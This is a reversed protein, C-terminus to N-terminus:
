QIVPGEYTQTIGTNQYIAWNDPFSRYLSELMWMGNYEIIIRDLKHEKTLAELNEKTLWSEEDITKIYVNQGWFKSPDLEEIGEECLLILTKEGSNFKQDAM